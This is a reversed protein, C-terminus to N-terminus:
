PAVRVGRLGARKIARTVTGDHKAEEIFRRAFELGAGRDKPLALAQPVAGPSEELVQSGPLRASLEFLIPQISFIADARGSLVLAVADDYSAVRLIESSRSFSSLYSDPGSRQQVAIRTAPKDLDGIGRFRSNQAILFGFQVEAHPPAFDWERARQANVGIFAVDWKGTKGADLLTGVSTYFVPEFRVQLRSALATGLDFGVGILQGDDGKTAQTADGMLLGVRLKGTPALAEKVHAPPGDTVAACAVVLLGALIVWCTWRATKM